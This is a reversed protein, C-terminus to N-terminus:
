NGYKELHEEVRRDLAPKWAPPMVKELLSEIQTIQQLQQTEHASAKAASNWLYIKALHEPRLAGTTPDVEANAYLIAVPLYAPAYGASAASELWFLATAPDPDGGQGESLMIGLRYQAEHMHREAAQQYWLRAAALNQPVETGERYYDALRLMAPPSDSQAAQACLTLGQQVDKEVGTGSIYLTGASCLAYAIGSGAAKRYWEVAGKGDIARGIGEALCDGYFQQAAPIKKYAAKEYWGCAAVRNVPRGWGNQEFMGLTFQALPNNVGHRAYLAHAKQYDGLALAKQASELENTMRDSASQAIPSAFLLFVLIYRM